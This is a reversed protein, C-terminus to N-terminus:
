KKKIIKPPLIISMAYQVGSLHIAQKLERLEIVRSLM